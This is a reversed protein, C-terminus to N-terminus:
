FYGMPYSLYQIFKHKSHPLGAAAKRKQLALGPCLDKLILVQLIGTLTSELGNVPFRVGKSAVSVFFM